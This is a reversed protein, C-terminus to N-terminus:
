SRFGGEDDQVFIGSGMDYGGDPASVREVNEAYVRVLDDTGRTAFPLPRARWASTAM